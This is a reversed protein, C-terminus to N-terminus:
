QKTFTLGMFLGGSGDRPFSITSGSYTGTSPVNGARVTVKSGDLTYTGPVSTGPTVSSTCSLSGGEKFTLTFSVGEQGGYWTGIIGGSGSSGGSPKDSGGGPNGTGGSSHNGDGSLEAYEFSNYCGTFTLAVACVLFLLTLYKKM